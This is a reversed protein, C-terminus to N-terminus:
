NEREEEGDRLCAHTNENTLVNALAEAFSRNGAGTFHVGDFAMPIQWAGVDAFRIGMREALMRYQSALQVSADILNQDPVWAGRQMPPPALLFIREAELPIRQLFWDMRKAATGADAGQLLDNGGLMIILLDTPEVSLLRCLQLIDHDRKPIERGNEGANVVTWGTAEALLDVWRCDAPYRDGFYSRPDYGYTNSDGYCIVRM